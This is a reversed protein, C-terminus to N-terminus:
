KSEVLNALIQEQKKQKGYAVYKALALIENKTLTKFRNELFNVLKDKHQYKNFFDRSIIRIVESKQLETNMETSLNLDKKLSSLVARINFRKHKSINDNKKGGNYICSVIAACYKSFRVKKAKCDKLVREVWDPIKNERKVEVILYEKEKFKQIRSAIKKWQHSYMITRLADDKISSADYYKLDEDITIRIDKSSYARREYVVAIQKKLGYKQICDNIAEIRKILHEKGIHDNLNILTQNIELNKGKSLPDIYSAPIKIRVKRTIKDETKIKLELYAYDEWQAKNPAYRRIRVKFRPVIKEINDRFADMDINDFYITQNLNFRVYTDVDGENLNKKLESLLKPLYQKKILYKDEIRNLLPNINPALIFPNSKLLNLETDESAALKTKKPHYTQIVDHGVKLEPSGFQIGAQAANKPNTQKIRNWTDEDVSIHPAFEYPTKFGMGEFAKHHQKINEAEPGHLKVVHVDNGFRDKFKDTSLQVNEPNIPTFNLGSATQHAREPTDAEKNFLKVTAHHPTGKNTHTQGNITVPYMLGMGSAALKKYAESIKELSESKKFSDAKSPLVDASNYTSYAMGKSIANGQVRTSPTGGLGCSAALAKRMNSEYKGLKPSKYQSAKPKVTSELVPKRPKPNHIKKHEEQPVDKVTRYGGYSGPTEWLNRLHWDINEAVPVQHHGEVARAKKGTTTIKGGDKKFINAKTPVFMKKIKKKKKNAKLKKKYEKLEKGQEQAEEKDDKHSPTKLAHVLKKHESVLGKLPVKLAAEKEEKKWSPKTKPMPGYLQRGTKAKQQGTYDIRDGTTLKKPTQTPTFTRKPKWEKGERHMGSTQGIPKYQLKDSEPKKPLKISSLSTTYKPAAKKLIQCSSIEEDKTMLNQVFSFNERNQDTLNKNIPKKAKLEEAIAMKNCPTLTLTIKRAICKTITIGRKELKSGEVSFNILHKMKKDNRHESDYKLMAAVDKAQQHGVADFLEGVIYIYPMKLKDWFYEQHENDCDSRKYIKKAEIIKGVIQSPTDNKHEWNLQGSDVLSSIDVGRINIKEGSSDIHSSVAPGHILTGKKYSEKTM